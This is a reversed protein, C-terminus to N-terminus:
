SKAPPQAVLIVDGKQVEKRWTKKDTVYIPKIGRDKFEGIQDPRILKTGFGAATLTANM